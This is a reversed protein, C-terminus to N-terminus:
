SDTSEILRESGNEQERDQMNEFPDILSSGLYRRIRELRQRRRIKRVIYFTTVIIILLGFLAFVIGLVSDRTGLLSTQEKFVVPTDSTAGENGVPCDKDEISFSLVDSTTKGCVIQVSYNQGLVLEKISFTGSNPLMSYKEFYKSSNPSFSETNDYIIACNALGSDEEFILWEFEAETKCSDTLELKIVPAVTSASLKWQLGLSTVMLLQLITIGEM